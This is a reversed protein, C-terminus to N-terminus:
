LAPPNLFTINWVFNCSKLAGPDSSKIVIRSYFNIGSCKISFDHPVENLNLEFKSKLFLLVLNNQIPSFM